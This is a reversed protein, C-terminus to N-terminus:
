SSEGWIMTFNPIFCTSSCVEMTYKFAVPELSFHFASIGPDFIVDESGSSLPFLYIVPYTFYLLFTRIVYAFSLYHRDEFTLSEYTRSIKKEHIGPDFVKVMIKLDNSLSRPDHDLFVKSPLSLTTNDSLLSKLYHIDGESDHYGDEIDTSTDVDLFADIEAIDDGLDFIEDENPADYLIKKWDNTKSELDFLDDNEEFPSENTFGEFISIVSIMPTSSDRHLLLEVDDSPTFCEDENFDSLPTVLFTSEDLNSDYSAKCKIDELEEDFVPNIDSSIYEKDFEFLPNSYIKVDEESIDEDFLSEDDSSTFDDNSDFLPNSFTVSKENFIPSFDDCSPLVSESDSGSTDESESPIPVLDEVSSKIFEDSEKEPITSLEGNGMILSDEPLSAEVYDINEFSDNDSLTCDDNSDPFIEFHDNLVDLPPSNDCFPMDCTDDSVGESERPIPVLNEVSSKIVEDSETEPITSLHEDGMSLSNDPEEISLVPTIAKSSNELYEKFQISYEEDDNDYFTPRNWSPCNIYESLEESIIQLDKLLQHLLEQIDEPKAHLPFRPPFDYGYHSNNGCLECLYTEYQPQPTHDSFNLSNNYSNPNPDCASSNGARLACILCFGGNLPSECECCTVPKGDGYTCNMCTGDNLSFGCQQCTCLYCYFGVCPQGCGM